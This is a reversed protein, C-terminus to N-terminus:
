AAAMRKRRTEGNMSICCRKCRNFLRGNKYTYFHEPTKFEGCTKCVRGASHDVAKRKGVWIALAVSGGQHPCAGYFGKALNCNHCLLQYRDKPFGLDRVYRYITMRDGKLRRREEGGDNLVHDLGLFMEEAEGCCVCKNGYADLVMQRLQQNYYKTKYKEHERNRAAHKRAYRRGRENLCTRCATEFKEVDTRWYFFETAAPLPKLCLRCIIEM